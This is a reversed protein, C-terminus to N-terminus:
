FQHALMGGLVGIESHSCHADSLIVIDGDFMSKSFDQCM